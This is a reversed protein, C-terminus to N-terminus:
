VHECSGNTRRKQVRWVSRLTGGHHEADTRYLGACRHKHRLTEGFDEQACRQRQWRRNRLSRRCPPTKQLLFPRERGRDIEALLPDAYTFAERSLTVIKQGDQIRIEIDNEIHQDTLQWLSSPVSATEKYPDNSLQPISEFTQLLRYAQGDRWETGLLVSYQQILRLSASHPVVQIPEHLFMVQVPQVLTAKDVGEYTTDTKWTYTFQALAHGSFILSLLLIMSSLCAFRLIRHHTKPTM